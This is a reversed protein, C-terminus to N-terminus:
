FTPLSSAVIIRSNQGTINEWRHPYQAPFGLTDGEKLDFSKEGCYVKLEGELVFLFEEGAHIAVGGSDSGPPITMLTPELNIKSGWLLFELVCPECNENSSPQLITHREKRRVLRIDEEFEDPLLSIVSVDLEDALKRLDNLTAEAKDNELRSLFSTSLGTKEALEKLTKSKINRLKKIKAGITM